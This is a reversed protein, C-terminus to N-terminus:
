MRKTITLRYAISEQHEYMGEIGDQSAAGTLHVQELNHKKSGYKTDYGKNATMTVVRSANATM